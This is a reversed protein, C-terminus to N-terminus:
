VYIARLSLCVALCIPPMVYIIDQISTLHHMISPGYPYHVFMCPSPYQIHSLNQTTEMTPRSRMMMHDHGACLASGDCSDKSWHDLELLVLWGALWLSMRCSTAEREGKPGDSRAKNELVGKQMRGRRWSTGGAMGAM